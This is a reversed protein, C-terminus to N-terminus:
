RGLSVLALAILALGIVIAAVAPAIGISRGPRGARSPEGSVRNVASGARAPGSGADAAVSRLRAALVAGDAPRRGPDAHLCSAVLDVLPAPFPHAHNTLDEPDTPPAGTLLTWLTAGLGYVDISPEVPGPRHTEPASFTPSYALTAATTTEGTSLSIGFDTLRPRLGDTLLVNGPKVDRHVIGARHCDALAEAAQEILSVADAWPLPGHDALLRSLSGRAYFPLLLYPEGRRTVGADFVPVVASHGSLRGMMTREREVREQTESSWAQHVVKIAVLRDLTPQSARYVTSSGGSGIVSVDILGEIGLDEGSGVLV